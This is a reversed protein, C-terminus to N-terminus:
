VVTIRETPILRRIDKPDSTVVGGGALLACRCVMVDTVSMPLRGLLWWAIGVDTAGIVAYVLQGDTALGWLAVFPM